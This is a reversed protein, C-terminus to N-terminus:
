AVVVSDGVVEILDGSQMEIQVSIAGAPTQSVTAENVCDSPGWPDTRSASVRCARPVVIRLAGEDNFLDLDIEVMAAAKSWEVTIRSLQADHLNPLTPLISPVAGGHEDGSPAEVFQPDDTM